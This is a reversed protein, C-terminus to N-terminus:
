AHAAGDNIQQHDIAAHEADQIFAAADESQAVALGDFKIMWPLRDLEERIACGRSRESPASAVLGRVRRGIRQEAIRERVERAELANVVCVIRGVARVIDVRRIRLAVSTWAYLAAVDAAERAIANRLAAPELVQMEAGLRLLQRAALKVSEIPIEAKVWG